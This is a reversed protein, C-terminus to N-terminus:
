HREVLLVEGFQWPQLYHNRLEALDLTAWAANATLPSWRM